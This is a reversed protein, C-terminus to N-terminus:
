AVARLPVSRNMARFYGVSFDIFTRVKATLQTRGSYVISVTRMGDNLSYPELVRVLAGRELDHRILPMPLLAIGM